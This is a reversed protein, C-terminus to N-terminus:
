LKLLAVDQLFSDVAKEPTAWSTVLRICSHSADVRHDVNFAYNQELTRIAPDPLIPFLQNTPSDAWFPVGRQLLADKMRAAMANAHRALELYLDDRLLERFQLGLLWGKALMAGHQKIYYRFNERAAPHRLVVAEGFLAGNKTGGIYFADTLEALDAFRLEPDAAMANGLRAGDMFLYLGNERCFRSLDALEARTYVTGVETSNSIYVLCPRVMHETAHADLVPRILAPTLKGDATPVTCVKHGTREIAGTEHVNVHGTEAAIVAEYSRLFAHIVILNAQTGGTLFYVELDDCGCRTRILAAAEACIPDLGYGPNQVANHQQLAQLIRPHAGESYDNQFSYM